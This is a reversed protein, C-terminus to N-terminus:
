NVSALSQGRPHATLRVSTAGPLGPFRPWLGQSLAARSVSAPKGTQAEYMWYNRLVTTVYGRTEWYPISEIYLLPDGGDRAVANWAEVPGPGANYAAIVKPLLGDTCHQDRLQELYSQGVEFNTGPRALASRDFSRGQKRAIDTAARPMVQMLGFAGAPSVVDTRFRSEQLTHAFVLAKDVRWGGDPTWNPAPFRSEVPPTAGVPGNHSLWVVTSPLDLASTLRVLAPYESPDGIRAQQKVVEDALANEGIEALAAAVRVNPRRSLTLWDGTISAASPRTAADKIGLAQRSLLGYFTERYQAATKLRGEVRDPRACQMDARAAWYLGAARLDTDRARAAVTEFATGAASCDHQRWAALAGVWVAEVAFDSSGSAAKAAMARANNDDGALFYMWAIKRQWETISEPSLGQTSELLGQADSGSDAKIFPQMKLALEVAIMDGNGISKARKRAPAGDIWTLARAEPLPPLGVGGRSAAMTFIQRAQPLEPAEALLKALPDLEAKPSGKATLIEALAIAHLPGPKLATLQLQADQWKQERINSFIARYGARQEPDLQPPIIDRPAAQVSAPPEGAAHAAVPLALALAAVGAITLKM